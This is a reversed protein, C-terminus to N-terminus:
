LGTSFMTFGQEEPSPYAKKLEALVEKFTEWEPIRRGTKIRERIDSSSFSIYQEGEPIQISSRYEDGFLGL